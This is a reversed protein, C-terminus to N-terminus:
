ASQQANRAENVYVGITKAIYIQYGMTIISQIIDISVLGVGVILQWIAPKDVVAQALVVAERIWVFRTFYIQFAYNFIGFGCAYTPVWKCFFSIRGIHSANKCQELHEMAMDITQLCSYGRVLILGLLLANRYIQTGAAESTGLLYKHGSVASFLCYAHLGLVIIHITQKIAGGLFIRTQRIAGFAAPITFTRATVPKQAELDTSDADSDSQETIDDEVQQGQAQPQGPQQFQQQAQQQQAYQQYQQQMYAAQQAFYEQEEPTMDEESQPMQPVGQSCRAAFQPDLEEAQETNMTQFRSDNNNNLTSESGNQSGNDSVNANANTNINNIPASM